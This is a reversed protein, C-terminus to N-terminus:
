LLYNNKFLTFLERLHLIQCNKSEWIYFGSKYSAYIFSMM